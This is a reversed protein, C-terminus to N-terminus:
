KKRRQKKRRKGRESYQSLSEKELKPQIMESLTSVTPGEYLIAASLKTNFEKELRSIIMMGILSNGGLEFFHDQIGVKELALSQAWIEAIKQEREDSPAVYATRLNPRPYISKHKTDKASLQELFNVSTLSDWQSIATELGQTLVLVQPLPTALIRWLTEEGEAFSIGYTERLKKMREYVEPLSDLLASQWVDWQWAGWNISFTPISHRTSNYHAFADMFANAACYDVEGMGGIIANISSYLVMFDLGEDRLIRDLVLTGQLKPTLVADAMEVTKSQIIGEGPVGALHFVGNIRGFHEHIQFVAAEMQPQDAVNAAIVLVKAGLKELEQVQGIRSRINTDTTGNEIITHWEQRPPLPTRGLLVLKVPLKQALSKSLALALGGLGGTILYVGNEQLQALGNEKTKDELHIPEFAQVWRNRNRDRYAVIEDKADALLEALLPELFSELPSAIDISSCTLYDYEKPIIKCPGLLTAKEPYRLEGGLVDQMYNSIIRIHAPLCGRQKGLAQALFLLSYFTNRGTESSPHQVQQMTDPTVSWLHVIQNPPQNIQYLHKILAAYDESSQPNITYVDDRVRSFSEGIMVSTVKEGQQQLKEVLSMSFGSQEIFLLWSGGAPRQKHLLPIRQWTPMYFWDTLPKKGTEETYAQPLLTQGSVNNNPYEIWYNQPEFPYTPLSCRKRQEQAYFGSWNVTVGTLWLQGLSHLMLALDSQQDYAAPLSSLVLPDALDRRAPHQLSLSGLTQGFGVELLINDPKKWLNEVGDAFRVPQRLHTAWYEPSTVQEPTVWTGTVNSIYPIKPAQLAITSVLQKFEYTIVEMMKSHFAHTTQLQRAAIGDALLKQELQSVAPQPGAVVCMMPGNIASLSLSDDLLPLVKEESLSIALMAGNPLKEIMQARQAVLRLADALSFVEALCAAVYEGLSYGIMAQPRIGWSIWLQALAYEIVFLAPQAFATQKLKGLSEQKTGRGLMQRLDPKKGAHNEQHQSAALKTAEDHYIVERLDLQLYPQLLKCCKDVIQRFVAENQYLDAAMNEYQDGLGPFMFTIPRSKQPAIHTFVQQPELQALIRITEVDNKQCVFMRRHFFANRGVQLTYAVNALNEDPHTQLHQVLNETAKDLAVNSKASLLLLQWERSPSGSNSPKAEEIVVHANTGSWGFSSIGAIRRGEITEWPTLTTPVKLITDDWNINPNPVKLNLHPPITKNQLALVCKILGAVGAGAVLHGINTKVTSVLLPQYRKLESSKGFVAQVSEVETLDGLATGTGHMEVYSVLQSPIKANALAQRIVKQQSLGNPATLTSSYGDENIASGHIIALVNDGNALADSLRKVVVMGCGEGIAYGDAQADFTKCRGDAGLQRMKCLNIMINPSSIVTVGGVLALNCEKNRLNQCALHLSLLSSSCATDVAMCPGQLDFLYSLRGAASSLSSGLLFYPDNYSNPDAVLQRELYDDSIIGIFVGTASGTLQEVAIGADEFVKWTTEILLRQQPSLRMTERPSFGFFQADFSGINPLFAGKRTYMKNIADPNPDYFADIDWREAPVEVIGDQGNKLLEWFASPTNIGGPFRCAMGIIAIPESHATELQAIKKEAKELALFAKKLTDTTTAM